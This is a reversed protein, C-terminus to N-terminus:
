KYINYKEPTTHAPFKTSRFWMNLLKQSDFVRSPETGGEVKCCIHSIDVQDYLIDLLNSHQDLM